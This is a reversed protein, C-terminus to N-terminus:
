APTTAAALIGTRHHVGLRDNSRADGIAAAHERLVRQTPEEGFLKGLASSVPEIGTASLLNNWQAGFESLRRKFAVYAQPHTKWRDGFDETPCIPNRVEIPGDTSLDELIGILIASLARSVSVDGRYYLAALTTLACSAPALDPTKVFAIDRWRKLLQVAI